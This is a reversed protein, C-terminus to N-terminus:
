AASRSLRSSGSAPSPVLQIDVSLGAVINILLGMPHSSVIGSHELNSYAWPVHLPVRHIAPEIGRRELDRYLGVPSPQDDDPVFIIAKTVGDLYERYRGHKAALITVEAEDVIRSPLSWHAFFQDAYFVFVLLRGPPKKKKAM